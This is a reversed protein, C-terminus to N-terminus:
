NRNERIEIREIDGELLLVSESGPDEWGGDDPDWWHPEEVLLEKEKGARSFEGIQGRILQDDNTLVQIYKGESMAGEWPQRPHRIVDENSWLKGRIEGMINKILIESYLLGLLVSLAALLIIYEGRFRPTFFITIASEISHIANGSLVQWSSLFVTYIILSSILSAMLIQLRTPQREIVGVSIAITVSIFGPVSFLIVVAASNLVDVM